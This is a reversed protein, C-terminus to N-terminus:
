IAGALKRIYHREQPNTATIEDILGEIECVVQAKQEWADRVAQRAHFKCHKAAWMNYKILYPAKRGCTTCIAQELREVRVRDTQKLTVYM